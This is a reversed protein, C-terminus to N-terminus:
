HLQALAFAFPVDQALAMAADALVRPARMSMLMARSSQVYLRASKSSAWRGRMMIDELPVHLLFLRTAGGHRLSHPVYERKNVKFIRIIFM